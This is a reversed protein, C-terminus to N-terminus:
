SLTRLIQIAEAPEKYRLLSFLTQKKGNSKVLPDKLMWTIHKLDFGEKRLLKGTISDSSIADDTQAWTTINKFSEILSRSCEWGFHGGHPRVLRLLGPWYLENRLGFKGSVLSEEVESWSMAQDPTGRPFFAVFCSGPLEYFAKMAPYFANFVYITRRPDSSPHYIPAAFM